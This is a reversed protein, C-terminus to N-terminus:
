RDTPLTLVMAFGTPGRSVVFTGGLFTAAQQLVNAEDTEKPTLRVPVDPNDTLAVVRLFVNGRDVSFHLSIEGARKRPAMAELAWEAARCILFKKEHSRIADTSEMMAKVATGGLNSYASALQALAAVVNSSDAREHDLEAQARLHLDRANEMAEVVAKLHEAEPSGPPATAVALRTRLLADQLLTAVHEDLLLSRRDIDVAGAPGINLEPPILSRLRRVAFFLLLVVLVIVASLLYRDRRAADISKQLGERERAVDAQEREELQAIVVRIQNMADTGARSADPMTKDSAAGREQITSAALEIRRATLPVLQELLALEAPNDRMRDRLRSLLAPIEGRARDYTELHGADGTIVYGRASTEIDVVANQLARLDSLALASRAGSSGLDEITGLRALGLWASIVAFAIVLALLFYTPLIPLDFPKRM